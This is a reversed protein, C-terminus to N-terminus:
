HRRRRLSQSASSPPANPHQHIQINTYQNNAGKARLKSPKAQAYNAPPPSHSTFLSSNLKPVRGFDSGRIRHFSAYPYGEHTGEGYSHIRYGGKIPLRYERLPLDAHRGRHAALTDLLRMHHIMSSPKTTSAHACTFIVSLITMSAPSTDM